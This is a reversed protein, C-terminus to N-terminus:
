GQTSLVSRALQNVTADRRHNPLPTPEPKQYPQPKRAPTFPRLLQAPRNPEKLEPIM